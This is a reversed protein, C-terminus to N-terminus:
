YASIKIYQHEEYKDKNQLYDVNYQPGGVMSKISAVNVKSLDAGKEKLATIIQEKGKEARAVSLQKNSGGYSRTPVTSASSEIKLNIRGNKTYLEM